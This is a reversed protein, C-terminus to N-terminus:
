ARRCALFREVDFSDRRTGADAWRGSARARALLSAAQGRGCELALWGGPALRDAASDLLPLLVDLGEAGAFLAQAPEWRVVEPALGAREGEAIYPPNGVILDLPPEGALPALLPGEAFRVKDALGLAAANEGALDLAARSVDTAVVRAGRAALLLALCGTGTGVDACAKGAPAGLLSLALRALDETEPRPILARRDCALDLELFRARGTLYQLPERRGRRLMLDRFRDVLGADLREEFRLYLGLRDCGLVHALLADAERRASPVGQKALYAAALNLLDLVGRGPPEGAAPVASPPRAPANM